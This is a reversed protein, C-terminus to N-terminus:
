SIPFSAKVDAEHMKDYYVGHDAPETVESIFPVLTRERHM